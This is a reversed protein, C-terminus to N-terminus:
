NEILIIDSESLVFYEVGDIKVPEDWPKKFFVTTGVAVEVPLRSGDDTRRGPGVAVVTGSLMKEKNVTEPLIIGSALQKEGGSESPRVVVRDGLPSLPFKKAMTKYILSYDGVRVPLGLISFAGPRHLQGASGPYDGCVSNQSSFPQM